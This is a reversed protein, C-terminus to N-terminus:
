PRAVQDLWGYLTRRFEPLPARAEYEAWSTEIVAASILRALAPARAVGQSKLELEVMMLFAVMRRRISEAGQPEVRMALVLERLTRRDLNAALYADIALKMRGLGAPMNLTMKGVSERVEDALQDM